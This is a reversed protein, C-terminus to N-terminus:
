YAQCTVPATKGDAEDVFADIVGCWLTVEETGEGAPLFNINMRARTVEGLPADALAAGLTVTQDVPEITINEEVLLVQGMDDLPMSSGEAPEGFYLVSIVVKEGLGTLREVTEPPFTMDLFFEPTEAFAPAAVLTLVAALRM